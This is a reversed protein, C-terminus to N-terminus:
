HFEIRRADLVQAMPRMTRQMLAVAGADYDLHEGGFDGAIDHLLRVIRTQTNLRAGQELLEQNKSEALSELWEALRNIDASLGRLEADGSELRASFDGQRIRSAWEAIPAISDLPRASSARPRARAFLAIATALLLASSLLQIATATEAGIHQRWGLWLGAVNCLALAIMAGAAGRIRRSATPARPKSRKNHHDKSKM